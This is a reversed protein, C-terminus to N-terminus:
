LVEVVHTVAQPASPERDVLVCETVAEVLRVDNAPARVSCLPMGESVQEGTRVQLIVGAPDAPQGKGDAQSERQCGVLVSRLADLDFRVFGNSKARVDVRRADRVQSVRREFADWTTAHANLMAAHAEALDAARPAGSPPLRAVLAEVIDTCLKVHEQLWPTANGTLVMWLALLAEGRGIYPQYPRSADTIVCAPSLGLLEAVRVYRASNEAATLRDEGFNGHEAMRVELGAGVVGVALKKSLLSAIVLAPVAQAGAEQRYAFLLADLPAWEGWALLHVYGYTNLAQGIGASPLAANFEPITQLVDVGGAPRGWVGLKPVLFGRTRLQLPCILTSLSGIGGTSSVDAASARLPLRAGSDALRRALAAIDGDTLVDERAAAIVARMTGADPELTAVAPHMRTLREPSSPAGRSPHRPDAVGSIQRRARCAHTGGLSYNRWGHWGTKWATSRMNPLAGAPRVDSGTDAPLEVERRRRAGTTWLPSM